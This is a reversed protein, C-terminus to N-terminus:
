ANDAAHISRHADALVNESSQESEVFARMFICRICAQDELEILMLIGESRMSLANFALHALPLPSLARRALRVRRGGQWTTVSLTFVAAAIKWTQGRIQKWCAERFKLETGM